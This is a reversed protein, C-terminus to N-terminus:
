ILPGPPSGMPPQAPMQPAQQQMGGMMNMFNGLVENQSFQIQLVFTFQQMLEPNQRMIDDKVFIASKFM